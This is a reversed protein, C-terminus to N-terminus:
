LDSADRYSRVTRWTPTSWGRANVVEPVGTCTQHDEIVDGRPLDYSSGSWLEVWTAIFM